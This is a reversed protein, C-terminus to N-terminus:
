AVGERPDAARRLTEGFLEFSLAVIMLGLGPFLAVWWHGAMIARLSESLIVGISPLHPPIGLGIFSLGAEHLIAHPFILVFGAVVQPLLHPALHHRAIWLPPRGLARSVAVFDAAAVTQAEHRLVRSLRPWHTLGVGFVVGWMGGGAAYAVLMVLVFHPLGLAMETLIGVLWDLRRDLAAGLGLVVALATSLIAAFLGVKVSVALAAFSRAAMDRGLADTGFPHAASPPLNRTLANVAPGTEPLTLAILIPAAFVAAVLAGRRLLARRLPSHRAMPRLTLSADTM